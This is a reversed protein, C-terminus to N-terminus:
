RRSGLAEADQRHQGLRRLPRCRPTSIPACRKSRRSSTPAASQMRRDRCRARRPRSLPAALAPGPAGTLAAATTATNTAITGLITTANQLADLQLQAYDATETAAFIGQDVGRAVQAVDRLYQQMSSANNRAATLFDQGAGQLGGLATADGTAALAATAAFKAKLAAYVNGQAADTAFLTERYKKLSDAFKTFQDITQQFGTIAKKNLDDFYGIVKSFAPAIAMLAAFMAQGADTTLDIGQVLAKFQAISQPEAVGLKAFQADIESQLFATQEAQTLFNDYYFNIQDTFKDLGGMLDILSERAAVSAVGVSGFTLGISKLAVDVTLYDKALRMLTEYLGEGTKQFQELGSVAFGAMQDAVKSFVGELAKTIEDGKLDKFSIKGIDVKFTKLVDGVDLGLVKAADVVSKYIDGIVLQAQRAFDTDLKGKTTSYSTDTGGGIGLFGSNTKVKEIVQYTFGTIGNAIINAVTAANIKMGEDFLSKTSTTSFLGLFGGSTNTGTKGTTDFFGGSLSLQRAVNAALAGIGSEIKRLSRVMDLTYDLGKTSNKAMMDLSNAISQSKATPDGLVTGTGQTDTPIDPATQTSSGGSFGLAAMVALMAAVAPFAFPGLTAFMKAAGAAINKVTNIAQIIAFAKEAAVMANYGASHEKFLSKLGDLTAIINANRMTSLQKEATGQTITGKAVQDNLAVQAESYQALRNLLGGFVDGAKGFADSLAQGTVQAQDSIAKLMDLVQKGYDPLPPLISKLDPGSLRAPVNASTLDSPLKQQARWLDEIKMRLKDLADAEEAAAKARDRHAKAAKATQDGLMDEAEKTVRSDRLSSARASIADFTAMTNNFIGHFTASVDSGIAKMTGSFNNQVRGLSIQTIEGLHTGLVSNIGGGLKNLGVIGVNVLKELAAIGLNAAAAIGGGVIAPLNMIVDATGKVMAGFAALIVAVSFKGFEGISHFASSFFKSVGSATLGAKELMVQYTAKTVDGWTVTTDKLKKIQKDTLDLTSILHQASPDIDEAAQKVGEFALALPALIAAISALVVGVTGLATSTAAASAEAAVTSAASADALAV